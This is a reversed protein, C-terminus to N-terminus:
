REGTVPTHTSTRSGTGAPTQCPTARRNHTDVLRALGGSAIVRSHCLQVFAIYHLEPGGLWPSSLEVSFRPSTLREADAHLWVRDELSSLVVKFVFM